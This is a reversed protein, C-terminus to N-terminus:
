IGSSDILWENRKSEYDIMFRVTVGYCELM